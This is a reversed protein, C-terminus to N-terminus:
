MFCKPRFDMGSFASNPEDKVVDTAPWYPYRPMADAPADYKRAPFSATFSSMNSPGTPGLSSGLQNYCNMSSIQMSQMPQLQSQLQSPVQSYSHPSLVKSGQCASYALPPSQVPLGWASSPEYRTYSAQYSPPPFINRAHPLSGAMSLQHHVGAVGLGHHVHYASDGFLGKGYHNAPRYPRKMRRRRRYNGNEFMNEYQPDLTWYNGKREGGGERAVKVFCENLSLNHRISNQWAKKNKEYYPFTETIYSYIESLTARKQSSKQIAMAIMAVYSYPPKNNPDSSSSSPSSRGGSSTTTATGSAAATTSPSAPRPPQSTSTPLQPLAGTSSTPSAPAVQRSTVIDKVGLTDSYPSPPSRLLTSVYPHQQAASPQSPGPTSATAMATATGPGDDVADVAVDVAVDEAKCCDVDEAHAPLGDEPHETKISALSYAMTSLSLAPPVSVAMPHHLGHPFPDTVHQPFGVGYPPEQKIVAGVAGVAGVAACVPSCDVEPSNRLQSVMSNCFYM